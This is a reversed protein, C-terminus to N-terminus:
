KKSEPFMPKTLQFLGWTVIAFPTLIIFYVVLTLLNEKM